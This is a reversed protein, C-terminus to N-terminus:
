PEPEGYTITAKSSFQKYDEYTITEEIRVMKDTFRLSEEAHTYVPFWYKDDIFQRYTEFEPFLNDRLQPVPKGATKVIQLDLDDVYIKGEFYFRGKKLSKPKVSFVYCNLEDVREKGEYELNYLPLEETTLAFPQLNNIVEEDQPTFAVSKLRGKRQVIKVDRSGDDRFIVESVFAMRENVPYGDVSLVKIVAIQRYTYNIWADYFETEKAAFEQIIEEPTPEKTQAFVQHPSQFLSHINSFGSLLLL